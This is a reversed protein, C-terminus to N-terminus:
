PTVIVRALIAYDIVHMRSICLVYSEFAVSQTCRLYQKYTANTLSHPTSLTTASEFLVRKCM